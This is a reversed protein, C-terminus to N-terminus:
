RRDCASQEAEDSTEDHATGRGKSAPSAAPQATGGPGHRPAAPPGHGLADAQAADWSRQHLNDDIGQPERPPTAEHKEHGTV